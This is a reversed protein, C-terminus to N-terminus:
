QFIVVVIFKGAMHTHPGAAFVNIGGEPLGSNKFMSQFLLSAM